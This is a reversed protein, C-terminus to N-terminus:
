ETDKDKTRRRKPRVQQNKVVGLSFEAMFLGRAPMFADMSAGTDRMCKYISSTESLEFNAVVRPLYKYKEVIPTAISVSLTMGCFITKKEKM